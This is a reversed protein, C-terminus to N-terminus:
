LGFESFDLREMLEEVPPLKININEDLIVLTNGFTYYEPEIPVEFAYELTEGNTNKILSVKCTYLM